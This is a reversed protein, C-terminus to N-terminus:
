KKQVTLARVKVFYKLQEKLFCTNVLTQALLHLCLRVVELTANFCASKIRMELCPKLAGFKRENCVWPAMAVAVTVFTAFLDCYM